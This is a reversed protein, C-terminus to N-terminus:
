ENEILVCRDYAGELHKDSVITAKIVVNEPKVKHDKILIRRVEHARSRCLVKNREMTGTGKDASGTIYFVHDPNEKLKSEVYQDLHHLESFNLKDLNTYFFLVIEAAAVKEKLAKYSLEITNNSQDLREVEVKLNESEKKKEEVKREALQLAKRTNALAAKAMDADAKSSTNEKIITQARNWYTKYLNYAVGVTLSLRHTRTADLTKYRSATSYHRLDATAVLRDTIRFTCYAGAGFAFENDYNKSGIGEGPSNDYLRCFGANAYISTQFFRDKKYGWLANMLNILIDGHIYALGYKLLGPKGYDGEFPLASHNIAHPTYGITLYERGSFGQYGLRAGVSPTFWKLISFDFQPSFRAKNVKSFSTGIGGSVGVYWNDYWKNTLYSGYVVKGFDDRNTGIWDQAAASVQISLVTLVTAIAKTTFHKVSVSIVGL